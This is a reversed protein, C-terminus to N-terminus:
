LAQGICLFMALLYVGGLGVLTASVPEEEITTVCVGISALAMAGIHIMIDGTVVWALMGLMGTAISLLLFTERIRTM